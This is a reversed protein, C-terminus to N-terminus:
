TPILKIDNVRLVDVRGAKVQAYSSFLLILAARSPFFFGGWSIDKILGDYIGSANISNLYLCMDRFQHKTRRYFVSDYLHLPDGIKKSM